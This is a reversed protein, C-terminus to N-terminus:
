RRAILLRIDDLILQNVDQHLGCATILLHPASEDTYLAM